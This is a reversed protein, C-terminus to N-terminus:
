GTTGREKGSVVKVISEDPNKLDPPAGGHYVDAIADQLDNGSYFTAVILKPQLELAEDLLM